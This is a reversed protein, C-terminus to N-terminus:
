RNEEKAELYLVAHRLRLCGMGERGEAADRVTELAQRACADVAPATPPVCACVLLAAVAAAARSRAAFRWPRTELRRIRAVLAAAAHALLDGHRM